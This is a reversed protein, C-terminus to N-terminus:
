DLLLVLTCARGGQSRREFGVREYLRLAPNEEEVSLSLTSYGNARASRALAELLARGIGGGRHGPEVGITVEPTKKDVFGYSDEQAGFLRYWAAGVSEGGASTEAILAFDGPRGWGDVYRSVAAEALLSEDLEDSRWGAAWCLMRELFWLDAPGAPRIVVESVAGLALGQLLAV